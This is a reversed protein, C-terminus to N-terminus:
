FAYDDDEDRFDALAPPAEGEVAEFGLVYFARFQPPVQHGRRTGTAADDAGLRYAAREVQRTGAAVAAPDIWGKHRTDDRVPPPPIPAPAPQPDRPM